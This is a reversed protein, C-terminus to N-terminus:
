LIQRYRHAALPTGTIMPDLCRPDCSRFSASVLDTPPQGPVEAGGLPSILRQSLQPETLTELPMPARPITITSPISAATGPDFGLVWNSAMIPCNVGTDKISGAVAEWAPSFLLPRHPQRPESRGISDHTSPAILDHAVAPHQTLRTRRSSVVGGPASPPSRCRFPALISVSPDDLNGIDHLPTM